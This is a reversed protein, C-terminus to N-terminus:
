VVKSLDAKTYNVNKLFKGAPIFDTELQTDKTAKIVWGKPSKYAKCPVGLDKYHALTIKKDEETACVKSLNSAHIIDWAAEFKQLDFLTNSIFLIDQINSLETCVENLNRVGLHVLKGVRTYVADVLADMQKIPSDAQTLEVMESLYLGKHLHDDKATFEEPTNIPLVMSTRLEIIDQYLKIYLAKTLLNYM